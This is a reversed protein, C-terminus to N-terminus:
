EDDTDEAAQAKGESLIRELEAYSMKTLDSGSVAKKPKAAVTQSSINPGSQSAEKLSNAMKAPGKQAEALQKELEAIRSDRAVLAKVAAARHALNILTGPDPAVAVPNHRFANALEKSEGDAELLKAMDEIHEAFKPVYKHVTELVQVIRQNNAEQREAESLMKDTEMAQVLKKTAAVPSELMEEDTPEPVKERRRVGLQNSLHGNLRQLNENDSQLKDLRSKFDALKQELDTTPATATNTAPAPPTVPQGEPEPKAAGGPQETDGAGDTDTDSETEPNDPNGEGDSQGLIAELEQDTMEGTGKEKVAM